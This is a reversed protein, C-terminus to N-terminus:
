VNPAEDFKREFEAQLTRQQELSGEALRAAVSAHAQDGREINDKFHDQRQRKMEEFTDAVFEEDCPGGTDLCTLKKM